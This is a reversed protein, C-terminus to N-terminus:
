IEAGTARVALLELSSKQEDAPESEGVVVVIGLTVKGGAQPVVSVIRGLALMEGSNKLIRIEDDVHRISRASSEFTVRQGNKLM